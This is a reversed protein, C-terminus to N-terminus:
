GVGRSIVSPNGWGVEDGISSDFGDLGDGWTEDGEGSLVGYDSGEGSWEAFGADEKEAGVVGFADFTEAELAEDHVFGGGDFLSGPLLGYSGGDGLGEAPSEEDSGGFATVPEEVDVGPSAIWGFGIVLAEGKGRIDRGEEWGCFPVIGLAGERGVDEPLFVHCLKELVRGTNESADFSTSIVVFRGRRAPGDNDGGIDGLVRVKGPQGGEVSIGSRGDVSFSELVEVPRDLTFANNGERLFVIREEDHVCGSYPIGDEVIDTSGVRAGLGVDEGGSAFGVENLSQDNGDFAPM